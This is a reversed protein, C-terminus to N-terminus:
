GLANVRKTLRRKLNAAKNEHIIHGQAAKDIKKYARQLAGAADAKNGSEVAERVQRIATRMASRREKNRLTRVETQRVRKKASVTNPM